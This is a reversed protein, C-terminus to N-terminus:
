HRSWESATVLLRTEGSAGPAPAPRRRGHLLGRPLAELMLAFTVQLPVLDLRQLGSHARSDYVALRMPAAVFCVFQPATGGNSFGPLPTLASRAAAAAEPVARSEDQAAIVARDTHQRVEHEPCSMLRAMWPTDARLRKWASLAGLDLKGLSGADAVRAVVQEVMEDYASSVEAAYQDAAAILRQVRERPEVGPPHCLWRTMTVAPGVRVFRPADGGRQVQGM